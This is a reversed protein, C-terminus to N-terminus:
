TGVVNHEKDSPDTVFSIEDIGRFIYNHFKFNLESIQVKIFNVKFHSIQFIFNSYFDLM